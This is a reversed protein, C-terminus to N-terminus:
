SKERARKLKTLIETGVSQNQGALDLVDEFLELDKVLLKAIQIATDRSEDRILEISLAKWEEVYDDAPQQEDEYMTDYPYKAYGQGSNEKITKKMSIGRQKNNMVEIVLNSLDKLNYEKTTKQQKCIEDAYEKLGLIGGTAEGRSNPALRKISDGLLQNSIQLNFNTVNAFIKADNNQSVTIPSLRPQTKFYGLVFDRIIEKLRGKNDGSINNTVAEFDIDSLIDLFYKSKTKDKNTSLFLAQNQQAKELESRLKLVCSQSISQILDMKSVGLDKSNYIQCFEKIAIEAKEEASTKSLANGALVGLGAVGNILIMQARLGGLPKGTQTLKFIGTKEYKNLIRSVPVNLIGYDNPIVSDFQQRVRKGFEEQVQTVATLQDPAEAKLVQIAELKTMILKQYLKVLEFHHTALQLYAESIQQATTGGQQMASGLASTRAGGRGSVQSLKDKLTKAAKQLGDGSDLPNLKAVEDFFDKIAQESEKLAQEAARKEIRSGTKTQAKLYNFWNVTVDDGTKTVGESLNALSRWLESGTDGSGFLKARASNLTDLHKTIDVDKFAAEFYDQIIKGFQDMDSGVTRAVGALRGSIAAINVMQPLSSNLVDQSELFLKKLNEDVQDRAAKYNIRMIENLDEFFQPAGAIETM